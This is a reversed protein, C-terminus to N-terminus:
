MLTDVVEEFVTAYRVGTDVIGVFMRSIECLQKGLLLNDSPKVASHFKTWASQSRSRNEAIRARRRHLRGHVHFDFKAFAKSRESRYHKLLVRVLPEVNTFPLFTWIHQEYRRDKFPMTYRNRRLLEAHHGIIRVQSFSDVNNSRRNRRDRMHVVARAQLSYIMFPIWPKVVYHLLKEFQGAARYEDIGTEIYTPFWDNTCGFIRVATKQRRVHIHQYQFIEDDQFVLKGSADHILFHLVFVECLELQISRSWHFARCLSNLFLSIQDSRDYEGATQLLKSKRKQLSQTGPPTRVCDAEQRVRVTASLARRPGLRDQRAAAFEVPIQQSSSPQM